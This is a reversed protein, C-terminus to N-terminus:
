FNSAFLVALPALMAVLLGLIATGAVLKALFLKSNM